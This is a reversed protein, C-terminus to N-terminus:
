FPTDIYLKSALLYIQENLSHTIIWYKYHVNFLNKKCEQRFVGSFM